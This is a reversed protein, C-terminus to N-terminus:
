NVKVAPGASVLPGNLASPAGEIVTSGVKQVELVALPRETLGDTRFKIIGDVGAFGGSGTLSAVAFRPEPA